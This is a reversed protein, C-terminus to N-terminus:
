KECDIMKLEQMRCLFEDVDRKCLDEEVDFEELLITTIDSVRHPTEILEWIRAGVPDLDFFTEKEIDLIVAKGKLQSSIIGERRTILGPFSTTETTM